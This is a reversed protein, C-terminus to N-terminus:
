VWQVPCCIGAALVITIRVRRRRKRLRLRSEPLEVRAM